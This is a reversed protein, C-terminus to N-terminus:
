HGDAVLRREILWVLVTAPLAVGSSSASVLLSFRVWKIPDPNQCTNGMIAICVDASLFYAWVMLGHGVITSVCGVFVLASGWLAGLSRGILMALAFGAVLMTFVLVFFFAGISNAAGGAQVGLLMGMASSGSVIAFVVVSWSTRAVWLVLVSVHILVAGALLGGVAPAWGSVEGPATATCTGTLLAASVVPFLLLASSKRSLRENLRHKRNSLM